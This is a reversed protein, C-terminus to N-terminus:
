DYIRIEISARQYDDGDSLVNDSLTYGPIETNGNYYGTALNINKGDRNWTAHAAIGFELTSTAYNGINLFVIVKNENEDAFASNYLTYYGADDRSWTPEYGLDNELINATPAYSGSQSLQAVYSRYPRTMKRYYDAGDINEHLGNPSNLISGSPATYGANANDNVTIIKIPYGLGSQFTAVRYDNQNTVELATGNDGVGIVLRPAVTIGTSYDSGNITVTGNANIDMLDAVAGLVQGISDRKLFNYRMFSNGPSASDNSNQFEFGPYYGLSNKNKINGFTISAGGNGYDTATYIGVKNDANRSFSATEYYGRSMGGIINGKVVDLKTQPLSTGVGLFKTYGADESATYVFDSSAQFGGGAEAQAKFQINDTVGASTASFPKHGVLGTWTDYALVDNYSNTEPLNQIKIGKLDGSGKSANINLAADVFFTNSNDNYRLSDNGYATGYTNYLMAGYNGYSQISSISDRIAYRVNNITFIISDKGGTRYITDVAKTVTGGGGGGSGGTAPTITVIVSATSPRTPSTGQPYYQLSVGTNNAQWYWVISDGAAMPIIYNWSAITHGYIGSGQGKPISIYGASGVVNVGNKRIWVTADHEANATNQFQGSWQMNYVGASDAIIKNNVLRFGRATDIKSLIIPYATTTSTIAQSTSDYFSGFSSAGTAASGSGISDKIARRIGGITFIISDKGPTRYITDVARTVTGGSGVSDKIKYIIGAIKFVISDQGSIRYITDVGKTTTGTSKLSIDTTTSGKIVRITSDNLKTVSSVFKNTTDIKRLYPNLMAITDIKRLYPNLMNTTDIKRLYPTLMNTTDIKRLYSILMATTDTKRLYKSLMNSTDSINVKLDIRNSLSTTDITTGSGAAQYTLKKTITDYGIVNTKTSKTLKPIFINGASDVVFKAGATDSSAASMDGVAFMGNLNTKLSVVGNQSKGNTVGAGQNGSNGWRFQGENGQFYFLGTYGSNRRIFSAGDFYVNDGFWANNIDYSQIGITGFEATNETQSNGNITLAVNADGRIGLKNEAKNWVFSNSGGFSGNNNFQVYGDSGAPSGTGGPGISDKIARRRGNITFIISDKTSNKYITDVATSIGGGGTIQSWALTKPNYQYFVGNCSDFAIAAKKTLNSKLTPVGCVTPISLTSDMNFRPGSYGYQPMSQYVQGKSSLVFLSLVIITWIKFQCIVRM